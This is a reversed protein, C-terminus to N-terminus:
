DFMFFFPPREGIDHVVDSFVEPATPLRTCIRPMVSVRSFGPPFFTSSLRCMSADDDIVQLVRDFHSQGDYHLKQDVLKKTNIIGGSSFLPPPRTGLSSPLEVKRGRGGQGIMPRSKTCTDRLAVRLAQTLLSPSPSPSFSPPPPRSTATLPLYRYPEPQKEAEFHQLYEKYLHAKESSSLLPYQYRAITEYQMVSSPVYDTSGWSNSFSMYKDKMV